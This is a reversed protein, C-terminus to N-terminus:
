EAGGWPMGSVLAPISNYLRNWETTIQAELDSQGAAEKVWPLVIEETLNDYPVFDSSSSDPTLEVEGGLHAVKKEDSSVAWLDFAVNIVGGDSSNRKMDTIKWTITFSM